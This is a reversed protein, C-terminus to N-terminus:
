GGSNKPLGGSFGLEIKLLDEIRDDAQRASLGRFNAMGFQALWRQQEEITWGVRESLDGLRKLQDNTVTGPSEPDLASVKGGRQGVLYTLSNIVSFAQREDLDSARKANYTALVMPFKAKCEANDAYALPLLAKIQEVQGAMIPGAPPEGGIRPKTETVPPKEAPVNGGDFPVTDPPTESTTQVPLQRASDPNPKEALLEAGRAAAATAKKEALVEALQCILSEAQSETLESAKAAGFAALRPKVWEALGAGGPFCEGFYKKISALQVETVPGGTSAAAQEAAKEALQPTADHSPRTSQSLQAQKAAAQQMREIYSLKAQEAAANDAAIKAQLHLKAEETFEEAQVREGKKLKSYDPPAAIYRRIAAPTAEELRPPLVPVIELKGGLFATHALRSKLVSASPIAPVSGQKDAKRDFWLFLSSLELLTEKGKPERKGTPAGGSFEDRLHVTAYITEFYTRLVDLTLKWERKMVGWFLAPSKDAQASTLGFKTINKRVHDALGDEIESVPDTMMVRYKGNRGGRKGRAIADERWWLFRQEPTFGNPYTRLLEMSMDVHDFDISKYTLSSGEQDYALTDPGPCITLGFITKGSGFEGTGIIIPIETSGWLPPPPAPPQQGNARPREALATSM